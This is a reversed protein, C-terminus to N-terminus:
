RSSMAGRDRRQHLRRWGVVGCLSFGLANAVGHTRAMDPVSLHPTGFNNGVAWQVALVMPVFVAVASLALLGKTVGDDVSPVVHRLTLVGLAFLGAALLSAGLIQLPGAFTFGAAVIPPSLVVAAAMAPATRPVAAQIRSRVLGTLLTAVFGAYTFHVATLLVFPPRVGVPQAGLRDIVLWGAGVTLCVLSAVEVTGPITRTTRLWRWAAAAAIVGALLLQPTALLAAPVSSPLSLAVTAPVATAFAVVPIRHHVLPHISLGVPM